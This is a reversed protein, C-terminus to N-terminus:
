SAARGIDALSAEIRELRALIVRLLGLIDTAQDTRVRASGGVAYLRPPTKMAKMTLERM